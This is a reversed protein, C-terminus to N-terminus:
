ARGTKRLYKLRSCERCQRSRGGSVEPRNVWYTNDPTYEHGHSCHTKAQQRRRNVEAVTGRQVNVRHPVAELHDPNVCLPSRCLHDLELGGPVDGHTLRWAAVHASVNEDSRWCFSGYGSSSVAGAWLWCGDSKEVKPWFRAAPPKPKPGPRPM